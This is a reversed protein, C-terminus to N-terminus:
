MFAVCATQHQRQRGALWERVRGQVVRTDRREFVQNADFRLLGVGGEDCAVTPNGSGGM